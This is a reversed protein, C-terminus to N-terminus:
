FGLFILLVYEDFLLIGRLFFSIFYALFEVTVKVVFETEFVM